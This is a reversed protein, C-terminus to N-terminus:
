RELIPVRRLSILYGYEDYALLQSDQLLDFDTIENIGRKLAFYNQGRDVLEYDIDGDYSNFRAVVKSIEGCGSSIYTSM